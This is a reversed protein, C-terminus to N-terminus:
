IVSFYSSCLCIPTFWKPLCISHLTGIFAAGDETFSKAHVTFSCESRIPRNWSWDNWNIQLLTWQHRKHDSSCCLSSLVDQAHVRKTIWVFRVASSDKRELLMHVFRLDYVLQILRTQSRKKSTRKESQVIWWSDYVNFFTQLLRHAMESSLDRRFM